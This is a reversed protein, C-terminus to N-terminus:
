FRTRRLILSWAMFHFSSEAFVVSSAQQAQAEAPLLRLLFGPACTTRAQQAAVMFCTIGAPAGPGAPSPTLRSSGRTLSHGARPRLPLLRRTWFPTGLRSPGRGVKPPADSDYCHEVGLWDVPADKGSRMARINLLQQRWDRPEWSPARPPKTDEEERDYAVNLKQTKRRHRSPSPSKRGEAFLAM